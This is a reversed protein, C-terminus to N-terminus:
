AITGKPLSLKKRLRRFRLVITNKTWAAGRANLFLPGAGNAMLRRTLEIMTANLWVVRPLGDEDTKHEPLIWSGTQLDVNEATVASIESPRCGTNRLAILFDKFCDDTAAIMRDLVEDSIIAQRTTVFPRSLTAFPNTSIRQTKVGWGFCARLTKAFTAQQNKGWPRLKTIHKRVTGKHPGSKLIVKTVKTRGKKSAQKKLFTEAHELTLQNCLVRGCFGTFYNLHTRYTGYTTAKHSTSSHELFAEVLEACPASDLKALPNTSMVLRRFVEEAKRRGAKTDEGKLLKRRPTGKVITAYWWGDIKRFWPKADRGM